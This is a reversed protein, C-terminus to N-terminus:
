LFNTNCKALYNESNFINAPDQWRGDNANQSDYYKEKILLVTEIFKRFPLDGLGYAKGSGLMWRIFSSHPNEQRSVGVIDFITEKSYYKYLDIYNEDHTLELYEKNTM